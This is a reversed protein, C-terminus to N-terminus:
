EVNKSFEGERLMFDAQETPSVVLGVMNCCGPRKHRKKGSSFYTPAFIPM